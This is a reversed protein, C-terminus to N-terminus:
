CICLWLIDLAQFSNMFDTFFQFHMSLMNHSASPNSEVGSEHNTGTNDHLREDLWDIVALSECFV